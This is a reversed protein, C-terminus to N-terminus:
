STGRMQRRVATTARWLQAKVTGISLSLTEAIEALSMEEAFRLLFISQQRPSLSATMQWVAQLQERALLVHEPSPDRAVYTAESQTETEFGVLRKWFSARRNKAHDRVLNVAIRLLWTGISCEGRFKARSSYARLFCEQTVTNAEDPDRVLLFVVRYVRKQHERVVQDFDDLLGEAMKAMPAGLTTSVAAV